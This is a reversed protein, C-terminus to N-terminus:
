PDPPPEIVLSDIFQELEALAEASPERASAADIVLLPTSSPPLFPGLLRAPSGVEVIWIRSVDGPEHRREVGDVNRWTAYRECEAVTANDPIRVELYQARWGSVTTAVPDTSRPLGAPAVGARLRSADGQWWATFADALGELSRMMPPDASHLGVPDCPDIFVADVAWLSVALAPKADGPDNTIGTATSTWGAPLSAHVRTPEPVRAVIGTGGGERTYYHLQVELVADGNTRISPTDIVLPLRLWGSGIAIASGLAAALLLTAALILTLRRPTRQLTPALRPALRGVAADLTPAALSARQAEVAFFERLRDDFDRTM